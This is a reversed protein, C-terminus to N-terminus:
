LNVLLHLALRQGQQPTNRFEWFLRSQQQATRKNDKHILRIVDVASILHNLIVGAVILTTRREWTQHRSRLRSYELRNAESDWQWFFEDTEPYTAEVNRQIIRRENFEFINSANGVDIWYQEDKGRADVAAHLAAFAHFDRELVGTYANSGWFGAWLAAESLFLIKAATHHGMLWEGSGPLILSLLVFRIPKKVKEPALGTKEGQNLSWPGKAGVQGAAVNFSKKGLQFFPRGSGALLSWWNGLVFVGIWALFFARWGQKVM